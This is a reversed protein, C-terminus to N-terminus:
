EADFLQENKRKCRECLNYHNCHDYDFGNCPITIGCLTKKSRDGFCFVRGEYVHTKSWRSVVWVDLTWAIYNM